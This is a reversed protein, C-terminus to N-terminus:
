FRLIYLSSHSFFIKFRVTYHFLLFTDQAKFTFSLCRMKFRLNLPVLCFMKCWFTFSHLLDDWITYFFFAFMEFELAYLFLAFCRVGLICLFLAFCRSNKLTFPHLLADWMRFYLPIPCLMKGKFHLPVLFYM